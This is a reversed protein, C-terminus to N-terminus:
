FWVASFGEGALPSPVDILMSTERALTGQGQAM